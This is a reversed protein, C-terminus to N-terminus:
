FDTVDNYSNIGAIEARGFNFSKQAVRGFRLLLEAPYRLNGHLLHTCLHNALVELNCLAMGQQLLMPM